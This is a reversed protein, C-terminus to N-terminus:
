EGKKYPNPNHKHTNISRELVVFLIVFTVLFSLIIM